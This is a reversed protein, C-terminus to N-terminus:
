LSDTCDRASLLYESFTGIYMGLLPIYNEDIRVM